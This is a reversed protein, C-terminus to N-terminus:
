ENVIHSQGDRQNQKRRQLTLSSCTIAKFVKELELIRSDRFDIREQSATVRVRPPRNLLGARSM